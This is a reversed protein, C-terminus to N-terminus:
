ARLLIHPHLNLDELILYQNSSALESYQVLSLPYLRRIWFFRYFRPSSGNAVIRCTHNQKSSQSASATPWRVTVINCILMFALRMGLSPKIILTLSLSTILTLWFTIIPEDRKECTSTQGRSTSRLLSSVTFRLYSDNTLIMEIIIVPYQVPSSAFLRADLIWCGADLM